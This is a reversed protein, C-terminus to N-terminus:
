SERVILATPIEINEQDAGNSKIRQVVMTLLAKAAAAFDTRKVTLALSRRGSEPLDSEGVVFIDKRLKMNLKRAADLVQYALLDGNTIVAIPGYRRLRALQDSIEDIVNSRFEECIIRAVQFDPDNEQFAEVLAQWKQNGSCKLNTEIMLLSNAGGAKFRTFIKEYAATSSFYVSNHGPVERSSAYCLAACFNGWRSWDRPNFLSICGDLRPIIHSQDFKSSLLIPAHGAALLHKVTHNQFLWSCPGSSYSFFCNEEVSTQLIGIRLHRKLGGSPVFPLVRCCRGRGSTVMGSRQLLKLAQRVTISSTNFECAMAKISPLPTHAEYEGSAIRRATIHYIEEYRPRCLEKM